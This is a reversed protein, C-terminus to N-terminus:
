VYETRVESGRKETARSMKRPGRRKRQAGGSIKGTEGNKEYM